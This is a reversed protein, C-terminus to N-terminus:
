RAGTIRDRGHARAEITRQAAEVPIGFRLMRGGFAVGCLAFWTWGLVLGGIVDSLWHVGLLVRSTAVAVGVAVAGGALAAQVRRSRGRGLLLALAAYCAAASASHGSPFSPGLTAAVPDISPRVRDLLNKITDTIVSQGLAVAVVFFPLWRSPRRVMEVVSVTVVITTLVLTGGLDTVAAVVDRALRTAHETGWPAVANDVDQLAPVSRVLYALVGLSAGGVVVIGLAGLLGLGTATAPDFHRRIWAVPSRRSAPPRDLRHAAISAPRTSAPDFRPWRLQLLIVGLGAILAPGFLVFVVIM